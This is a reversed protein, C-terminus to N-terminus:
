TNQPNIETNINSNNGSSKELLANKVTQALNFDIVDFIGADEGETDNNDNGATQIILKCIGMMRHLFSQEINVNQIQRYPIAIEKKNLFGRKVSIAVDNLSFTCSIYRIWALTMGGALFAFSALFIFTIIISVLGTATTAPLFFLIKVLVSEKIFLFIFSIILLIIGFLIRRSLYYYFVKLGLKTEKEM